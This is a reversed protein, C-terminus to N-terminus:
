RGCIERVLKPAFCISLREVEKSCLCRRAIAAVVIAHLGHPGPTYGGMVFEQALSVRHKILVRQTQRASVQWSRAGRNVPRPRAAARNPPPAANPDVVNQPELIGFVTKYLSGLSALGDVGTATNVAVVVALEDEPRRYWSFTHGFTQGTYNWLPSALFGALVQFIGLSFGTTDSPSVAAIPQGSTTCVVSFLEAKQKPALLTNSFLASVWRGVDSLSAVIGGSSGYASLNATKLDQGLLNDM